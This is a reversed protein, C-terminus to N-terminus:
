LKENRAGEFGSTHRYVYHWDERAIDERVKYQKEAEDLIQMDLDVISMGEEASDKTEDGLAGLFPVVVRSLGAYLNTKTSSKSGGINAFVIACTNEFTRSTLTSELFLAEARPNLKLGYPSCDNLTWFTPIIIIKAGQAILERFAEPFALDWCILLGVPGLPTQIVSHPDSTCLNKKQYSGLVEGHNDIFYTVNFLSVEDTEPDKHPEMLTGPVICIDLEKALSQYKGLYLKSQACLKSFGPEDPAWGTLHYEPLVALKAGRSAAEHIFQVTKVYNSEIQLPKPYLQIVALRHITAM